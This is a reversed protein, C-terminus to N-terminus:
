FLKLLRIYTMFVLAAANAIVISTSVILWGDRAAHPSGNFDERSLAVRSMMSTANVFASAYSFHCRRIRLCEKKRWKEYWRTCKM